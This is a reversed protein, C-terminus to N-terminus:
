KASDQSRLTKLLIPTDLNLPAYMIKADECVGFKSNPLFYWIQWLIPTDLNLPAFMIKADECVGYKSTPSFIGPNAVFHPIM